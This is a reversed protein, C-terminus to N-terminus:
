RCLVCKKITTGPIVVECYRPDTCQAESDDLKKLCRRGAADLDELQDLVLTKATRDWRYYLAVVDERHLPVELNQCQDRADSAIADTAASLGCSFVIACLFYQVRFFLKVSVNRVLDERYITADLRRSPQSTFLIHGVIIRSHHQRVQPM